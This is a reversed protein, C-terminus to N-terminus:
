QKTAVIQNVIPALEKAVIEHGFKNMHNDYLYYTLKGSDRLAKTIDVYPIQDKKLDSDLRSRFEELQHFRTPLNEIKFDEKFVKKYETPHVQNVDPIILVLLRISHENAIKNAEKIYAYENEYDENVYYPEPEQIKLQNHIAEGFMGTNIKGAYIQQLINQNFRETVKDLQKLTLNLNRAHFEKSIKQNYYIDWFNRNDVNQRRLLLTKGKRVQLWLTRVYELSIINKIQSSEKIPLQLNVKHGSPSPLSRGGMFDNGLFIGMVILDPRLAIGFTAINDFYTDPNTALQGVNIGEYGAGLMEILRNSFREDEQVGYGETFSDGVFLIRQAHENKESSIEKDRFGESNYRHQSEFEYQRIQITKGLKAADLPYYNAIPQQPLIYITRLIAEAIYLSVFCSFIILFAEVRPFKIYKYPFRWM